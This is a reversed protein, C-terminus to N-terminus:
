HSVLIMRDQDEDTKYFPGKQLDKVKLTYLKDSDNVKSRKVPVDVELLVHKTINPGKKMTSSPLLVLGSHVRASAPRDVYSRSPASIWDVFAPRPNSSSSVLVTESSTPRPEVFEHAVIQNINIAPQNPLFSYHANDASDGDSLPTTVSSVALPASRVGCVVLTSLTLFDTFHM